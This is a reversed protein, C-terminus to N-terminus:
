DGSLIWNKARIAEVNDIPDINLEVSTRLIAGFVRWMTEWDAEGVEKPVPCDVISLFSASADSMTCGFIESIKHRDLYLRAKIRASHNLLFVRIKGDELPKRVLEGVVLHACRRSMLAWGVNGRLGESLILELCRTLRYEILELYEIQQMCEIRNKRDESALAGRTEIESLMSRSAQLPSLSVHFWPTQDHQARYEAEALFADVEDHDPDSYPWDVVIQPVTVTPETARRPTKEEQGVAHLNMKSKLFDCLLRHQIADAGSPKAISFHDSHPVKFPEGFYRAGSFPEVVQKRWIRKLIVFKDEILEKGTIRLRGAEKLNQFEKDLDNLWANRQEFRLAEAQAHGFVRALPGLWNAYSSGLSPSAVLFLGIQTKREILDAAREVLFKRVIIGGLSHCVFIIQECEFLGDLRMQEKLADVIDGLRYNGSFIDTQYTFVYIGLAELGAVNKLLEPWYSGDEHRWCKDGTSLIGHVFVVASVGKRERIWVGQM